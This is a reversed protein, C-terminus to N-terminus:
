PEIRVLKGLARFLGIVSCLLQLLLLRSRLVDLMSSLAAAIPLM